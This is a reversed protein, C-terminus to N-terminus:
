SNFVLCCFIIFTKRIEFKEYFKIKSFIQFNRKCCKLWLNEEYWNKLLWTYLIYLLKIMFLANMGCRNAVQFRNQGFSMNVAFLIVIQVDTQTLEIIIDNYRSIKTEASKYSSKVYAKTRERRWM